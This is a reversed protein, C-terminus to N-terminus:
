AEEQWLKELQQYSPPMDAEFRLYTPIPYRVGHKHTEKLGTVLEAARSYPFSFAEGRRHGHLLYPVPSQSVPLGPSRTVRHPLSLSVPLGFQKDEM